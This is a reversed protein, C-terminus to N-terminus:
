NLVNVSAPSSTGGPGTCTVSYNTTITPSVMIAGSTAGGTSFNTGTCSTANISAWTLTSTASIGATPSNFSASPSCAPPKSGSNPHGTWGATLVGNL